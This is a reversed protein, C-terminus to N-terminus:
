SDEDGGGKPKLRLQNMSCWGAHEATEQEAAAHSEHHGGEWGCIKCEGQYGACETM